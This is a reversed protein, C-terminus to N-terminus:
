SLGGGVCLTHNSYASDVHSDFHFVDSVVLLQSIWYHKPNNEDMDGMHPADLLRFGFDPAKRRNKDTVTKQPPWIVKGTSRRGSRTKTRFRRRPTSKLEALAYKAWPINHVDGKGAFIRTHMPDPDPNASFLRPPNRIIKRRAGTFHM